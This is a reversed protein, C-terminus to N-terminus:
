GEEDGGGRLGGSTGDAGHLDPKSECV